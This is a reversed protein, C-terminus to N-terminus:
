LKVPWHSLDPGEECECGNDWRGCRHCLARSVGGEFACGPCIHGIIDAHQPNDGALARGRWATDAAALLTALTQWLQRDLTFTKEGTDLRLEAAQSLQARVFTTQTNIQVRNGDVFSEALRTVVPGPATILDINDSM